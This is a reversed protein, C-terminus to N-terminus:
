AAKGQILIPDTALKRARRQMTALKAPHIEYIGDAHDNM